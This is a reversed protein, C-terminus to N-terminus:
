SGKAATKSAAAPRARSCSNCSSRDLKNAEDCYPCTWHQVMGAAEAPFTSDSKEAVRNQAQETSRADSKLDPSTETGRPQSCSNCSSRAAKNPEGCHLCMWHQSTAVLEAQGKDNESTTEAVASPRPENCGNCNARVIKNEEDCKPCTWREM